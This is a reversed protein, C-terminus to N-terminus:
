AQTGIIPAILASLATKIKSGFVKRIAPNMDEIKQAIEDANLPFDMPFLDEDLIFENPIDKIMDAKKLSRMLRVFSAPDEIRLKIGM